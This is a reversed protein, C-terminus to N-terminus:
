SASAPLEAVLIKRAVGRGIAFMAGRLEVWVPGGMPARHRVSLTEDVRVGRQALLTACRAGCSLQMVKVRAGLRVRDLSLASHAPKGAKKGSCAIGLFIMISEPRSKRFISKL